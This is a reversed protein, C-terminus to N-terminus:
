IRSSIVLQDRGYILERAFEALESPLSHRCEDQAALILLRKIFGQCQQGSTFRLDSASLKQQEILAKLIECNYPIVWRQERTCIVFDASLDNGTNKRKTKRMVIPNSECMSVAFSQNLVM